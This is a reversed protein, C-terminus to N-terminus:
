IMGTEKRKERERERKRRSESEREREREWESMWKSEWNYVGVVKVKQEMKNLNIWTEDM